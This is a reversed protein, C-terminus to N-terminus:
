QAPLQNFASANTLVYNSVNLLKQIAILRRERSLRDGNVVIDQIPKDM